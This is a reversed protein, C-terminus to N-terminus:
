RQASPSGRQQLRPSQAMVRGTDLGVLLGHLREGRVQLRVQAPFPELVGRLHGRHAALALRQALPEVGLHADVAPAQRQADEGAVGALRGLQPALAPEIRNHGVRRVPDHVPRDAIYPTASAAVARGRPQEGVRDRDPDPLEADAARQPHGPVREAGGALADRLQQTGRAHGYAVLTGPASEGVADVRRYLAVDDNRYPFASAQSLEAITLNHAVPSGAERKM